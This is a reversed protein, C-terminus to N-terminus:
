CGIATSKCIGMEYRYSLFRPKSRNKNFEEESTVYFANLNKEKNIYDFYM